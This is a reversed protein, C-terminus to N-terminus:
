MSRKPAYRLHEARSYQKRTDGCIDCVHVALGKRRKRTTFTGLKTSHNSVQITEEWVESISALSESRMESISGGVRTEGSGEEASLDSMVEVSELLGGMSMVSVGRIERSPEDVDMSSEDTLPADEMYVRIEEYVATSDAMDVSSDVTDERWMVEEMREKKVRTLERMANAIGATPLNDM